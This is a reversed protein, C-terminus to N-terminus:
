SLIYDISHRDRCAEVGVDRSEREPVRVTQELLSTRPDQVSLRAGAARMVSVSGLEDGSWDVAPPLEPILSAGDIQASAMMTIADRPTLTLVDTLARFVDAHADFRVIRGSRDFYVHTETPVCLKCVLVRQTFAEDSQIHPFVVDITSQSVRGYFGGVCKVITFEPESAIVVMSLIFFSHMSFVRTYREWQEFLLERGFASTNIAVKDHTSAELFSREEPKWERHGRTYVQFYRDTIRMAAGAFNSRTVFIRTALSRRQTEYQQVQQKLDNVDLTLNFIVSNDAEKELWYQMEQPTLKRTRKRPQAFVGVPKNRTSSKKHPDKTPAM